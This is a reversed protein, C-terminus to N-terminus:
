EEQEQEYEKERQYNELFMKFEISSPRDCVCDYLWAEILIKATNSM